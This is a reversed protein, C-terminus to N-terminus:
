SGGVLDFLKEFNLAFYDDFVGPDLHTEREEITNKLYVEADLLLVEPIL